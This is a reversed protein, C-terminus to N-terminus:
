FKFGLDGPGKQFLWWPRLRKKPERDFFYFPSRVTLSILRLPSPHDCPFHSLVIRKVELHELCSQSLTLQGSLRLHPRPNTAPGGQLSWQTHATIKLSVLGM